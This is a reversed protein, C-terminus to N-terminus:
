PTVATVSEIKQNYTSAGIYEGPLDEATTLTHTLVSVGNRYITVDLGAKVVRVIGPGSETSGTAITTRVAAVKRVLKTTVSGGVQAEFGTDAYQDHAFLVYGYSDAGVFEVTVDVNNAFFHLLGGSDAGATANFGAKGSYISIGSPAGTYQAVWDNAVLGNPREFDDSFSVLPTSTGTGSTPATTSTSAAGATETSAYAYRVDLVDGAIVVGTTFNVQNGAYAFDSGQDQEVGNVYVHLSGALPSYTLTATAVASTLAGSGTPFRDRAFSTVAGPTQQIIWQDGRRELRRVRDLLNRQHDAQKALADARLAESM